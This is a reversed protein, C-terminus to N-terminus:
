TVPSCGGSKRLFSLIRRFRVIPEMASLTALFITKDPREFATSMAPQRSLRAIAMSAPNPSSSPARVAVIAAPHAVKEGCPPINRACHLKEEVALAHAYEVPFRVEEQVDPKAATASLRPFPDSARRTSHSGTGYPHIIARICYARRLLPM